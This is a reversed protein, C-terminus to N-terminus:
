ECRNYQPIWPDNSTASHMHPNQTTHLWVVCLPCIHWTHINLLQTNPSIISCFTTIETQYLHIILFSNQLGPDILITGEVSMYILPNLTGLEFPPTFLVLVFQVILQRYLLTQWLRVTSRTIFTISCSSGQLGLRLGLFVSPRQSPFSWMYGMLKPFM